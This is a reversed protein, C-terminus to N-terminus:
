AASVNRAAPRALREFLALGGACAVLMGAGLDFTTAVTGSRAAAFGAFWPGIVLALYFATYFIGMGIARTAPELVRAPLSMIPGASLGCVLGLAAFAVLGSPARPAVLLLIAFGALGALLVALPRGTRDALFGGLPVSLATLWLALSTTAGADSVSAGRGVLLPAGFSFVTGIGANYLGWILGAVIVAGLTGGRLSGGTGPGTAAPLNPRDPYLAAFLLLGLAPFAAALGLAASM